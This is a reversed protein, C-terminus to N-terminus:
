MKASRDARQEMAAAGVADEQLLVPLFHDYQREVM